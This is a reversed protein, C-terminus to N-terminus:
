SGRRFIGLVGGALPLELPNLIAILNDLLSESTKLSLEAM